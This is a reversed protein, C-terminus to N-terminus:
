QITLFKLARMPQATSLHGRASGQSRAMCDFFDAKFNRALATAAKTKIQDQHDAGADVGSDLVLRRHLRRRHHLRHRHGLGPNGEVAPSSPRRSRSAPRGWVRWSSRLLLLAVQLLLLGVPRAALVLLLDVLQQVLRFLALRLDVLALGARFPTAAFLCAALILTALITVTGIKALGVVALLPAFDSGTWFEAFGVVVALLAALDSRTLFEALGVAAFFAALITIAAALRDAGFRVALEMGFVALVGGVVLVVVLLAALIALVVVLVGAVFIGAALMVAVLMVALAPVLVGHQDIALM